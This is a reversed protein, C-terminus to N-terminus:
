PLLQGSLRNKLLTLETHPAFNQEYRNITKLSQRTNGIDNYTLAALRIAPEYYKDIKLAQKFNLLARRHLVPNAQKQAFARYLGGKATWTMPDQRNANVAANAARVLEQGMPTQEDSALPLFKDLEYLYYDTQWPLTTQTARFDQIAVNLDNGRAARLLQTEASFTRGALLGAGLLLLWAFAAGITMINKGINVSKIQGSLAATLGLFIWFLPLSSLDEPNFQAAVLYAAIAALPTLPAATLADRKSVPQRGYWFLAGIIAAGFILAPWGASVALNLWYNHTDEFQSGDGTKPPTVGSQWIATRVNDLGAGLVPRDLAAQIATSWAWSREKLATTEYQTAYGAVLTAGALIIVPLYKNAARKFGAINKLQDFLIWGAGILAGLIAGASGAAVLGIVLVLLAAVGILRAAPGFVGWALRLVPPVMLSLYLGFYAPNGMTAYARPGFLAKLDLPFTSGLSQSIGVAGAALVGAACSLYLTRLKRNDWRITTAAWMLAGSTLYTALGLYRKRLGLWSIMPVPSFITSLILWGFFLALAIGLAGSPRRLRGTTLAQQAIATLAIAGLPLLFIYKPAGFVDFASTLFVAPLTAVAVCLIYLLPFDQRSEQNSM